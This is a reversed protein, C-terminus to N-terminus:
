AAAPTSDAPPTRRKAPNTLIPRLAAILEADPPPAAAAEAELRAVTAAGLIAIREERTM